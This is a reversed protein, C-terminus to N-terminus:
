LLIAALRLAGEVMGMQEHITNEEGFASIGAKLAINDREAILALEYGPQGVLTKLVAARENAYQAVEEVSVQANLLMSNFLDEFPNM